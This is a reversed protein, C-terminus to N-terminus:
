HRPANTIVDSTIVQESIVQLDHFKWYFKVTPFLYFRQSRKRMDWTGKIVSCLRSFNNNPGLVRVLAQM